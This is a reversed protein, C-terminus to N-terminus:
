PQKHARLLLFTEEQHARYGFGEVWGLVDHLDAEEPVEADLEAERFLALAEANEFRIPLRGGFRKKLTDLYTAGSLRTTGAPWRIIQTEIEELRLPETPIAGSGRLHDVVEPGATSLLRTDPDGPVAGGGILEPEVLPKEDDLLVYGLGAAALLGFLLLLTRM